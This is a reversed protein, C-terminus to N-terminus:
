ISEHVKKSSLMTRKNIHHTGNIAKCTNFWAKMGPSFGVQEHHIIKKIYQQIRNALVNTVIKADTNM